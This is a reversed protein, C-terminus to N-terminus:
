ASAEPRGPTREVHLAEEPIKFHAALRREDDRSLGGDPNVDPASRITERTFPVWVHGAGHAAFAAPIASRRGFRGRRIVFWTPTEARADVLLSEIRGVPTGAMDDLRAGVWGSAEEADPLHEIAEAKM